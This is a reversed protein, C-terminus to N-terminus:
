PLDIEWGRMRSSLWLAISVPLHDKFSSKQTVAFIQQNAEVLQNLALVVHFRRRMSSRGALSYTNSTSYKYANTFTYLIKM